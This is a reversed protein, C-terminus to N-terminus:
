SIVPFSHLVRGYALVVLFRRLELPVFLIGSRSGSSRRALLVGTSSGFPVEISSMSFEMLIGNSFGM